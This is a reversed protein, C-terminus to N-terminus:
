FFIAPNMLALTPIIICFAVTLMLLSASLVKLTFTYKYIKVKSKSLKLLIATLLFAFILGSYSAISNVFLTLFILTFFSTLAAGCEITKVPTISKNMNSHRIKSRIERRKNRSLRPISINSGQWIEVDMKYWSIFNKCLLFIAILLMLLTAIIGLNHFSLFITSAYEIDASASPLLPANKLSLLADWYYQVQALFQSKFSVGTICYTLYRDLIFVCISLISLLLHWKFTKNRRRHSGIYMFPALCLIVVSTFIIFMNCSRMIGIWMFAFVAYAAIKHQIQYNRATFVAIPYPILACLLAALEDVTLFYGGKLFPSSYFEYVDNTMIWVRANVYDQFGIFISYVAFICLAFILAYIELRLRLMHLALFSLAVGFIVVLFLTNNEDVASKYIFTIALIPLYLFFYVNFSYSSRMRLFEWLSYLIVMLPYLLFLKDSIFFKPTINDASKFIYYVIMVFLVTIVREILISWLTDYRSTKKLLPGILNDIM